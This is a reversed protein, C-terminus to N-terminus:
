IFFFQGLILVIFGILDLVAYIVVHVIANTEISHDGPAAKIFIADVVADMCINVAGVTLAIFALAQSRRGSLLLGLLAAVAQVGSVWLQGRELAEVKAGAADTLEICCSDAPNCPSQKLADAANSALVIAGLLALICAVKVSVFLPNLLIKKPVVSVPEMMKSDDIPVVSSAKLQSAAMSRGLQDVFNIRLCARTLIKPLLMARRTQRIPAAREEGEEVSRLRVRKRWPDAQLKSAQEPGKVLLSILGLLDGALYVVVGGGGLIIFTIGASKAGIFILAMRGMMYHAVTASVVAFLALSWRSRAHRRPLLLGVTAAAGQPVTLWLSGYGYRDVKAGQAPTLNPCQNHSCSIPTNAFVLIGVTVVAVTSALFFAWELIGKVSMLVAAEKKEEKKKKIEKSTVPLVKEDEMAVAVVQVACVPPKKDEQQSEVAVALVFTEQIKDEM